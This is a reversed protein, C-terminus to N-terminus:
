IHLVHANRGRGRTSAGGSFVVVRRLRHVKAINLTVRRVSPLYMFIYRTNSIYERGVQVVVCAQPLLLLLVDRM